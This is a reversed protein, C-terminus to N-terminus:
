KAGVIGKIKEVIWEIAEGRALWDLITALHDWAWKVATKGYKALLQIVKFAAGMHAVAKQEHM